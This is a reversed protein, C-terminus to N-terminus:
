YILYFTITINDIKYEFIENTNKKFIIINNYPMPGLIDSLKDSYSNFIRPYLTLLDYFLEHRVRLNDSTNAEIFKM